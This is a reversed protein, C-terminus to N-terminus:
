ENQFEISTELPRTAFYRCGNYGSLRNVIKESIQFPMPVFVDKEHLKEPHLVPIGCYTRDTKNMDEDVCFTILGKFESILWASAIGAGFVGVEGNKGIKEIRDRINHLWIMCQNIYMLINEDLVSEDKIVAKDFSIAVITLEKSVVQSDSQIVKFGTKDLLRAIRNETFHTCHDAILLDFPNEMINPLEIILRGEPHLLKRVAVMYSEPDPIHELVHIMSILDYAGKINSIEKSYYEKVNKISEIGSKKKEDLDFGFLDWGPFITSFTELMHGDACGIDLFRGKLAMPINKKVADLITFSRTRVSHNEGSFVVQDNGRSQYYASYDSYIADIESLFREDVCKQVAHCQNCVLLSGSNKWPKCDSTVRHLDKYEGIHNVKSSHCLHCRHKSINNM